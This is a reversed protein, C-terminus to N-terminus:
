PAAEWRWTGPVAAMQGMGRFGPPPSNFYTADYSLTLTDNAEVRFARLM